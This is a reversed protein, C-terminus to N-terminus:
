GAPLACPIGSAATPAQGVRYIAFQHTRHLERLWGKARFIEEHVLNHNIVYAERPLAEISKRLNELVTRLVYDPFPNFLYLVLRADPFEFERADCCIAEINFCRQSPSQYGAINKEAAQHLEELLEVGVIERFPYDSAMLLARGKGSGLDLFVFGDAPVPLASLMEHFLDPETAHYQAGSLLERFRTRLSLIAWSTDVNHEFDYDIDGYRLRRRQPTLDLLLNLTAGSYHRLAGLIGRHRVVDAFWSLPKNRASPPTSHPM